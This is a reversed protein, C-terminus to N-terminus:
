RSLLQLDLRDLRLHMTQQQDPKDQAGAETRAFGQFCRVQTLQAHGNAVQTAYTKSM